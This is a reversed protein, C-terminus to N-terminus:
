DARQTPCTQMSTHQTCPYHGLDALATKQHGAEPFQTCFSGVFGPPSGHSYEFLTICKYTGITRVSVPLQNNHKIIHMYRKGYVASLPKWVNWCLKLQVTRKRLKM